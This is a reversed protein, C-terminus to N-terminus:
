TPSARPINHEQDKKFSSLLQIMEENGKHIALWLPTSGGHGTVNVDAGHDLLLQVTKFDNNCVAKHLPTEGDNNRSEINAGRDLLLQVIGIYRCGCALYLPTHNDSDRAETDAGRDLLLQVIKIYGYRSALCLPTRNDSDRAEIDAGRDLLLQAIEIHGGSSALYLPTRRDSDRAKIDAGRDLLLQVIEIHGCWSALCLPTRNDSARAEIDAGRDLLLQVIKIHRWRSALCLPTYRNSDRAEIDAGRDLLLQVIEIHGCRSALCLPTPLGIHEDAHGSDPNIGQDLLLLQVMGTCGEQTAWHLPTHGKRPKFNRKHSIDLLASEILAADGIQPLLAGAAEKHGNFIAAALPSGYREGRFSIRTDYRNMSHILSAFNSEALIYLLSASPTHRRIEFIEFTNDLNIWSKLDFTKLFADQPLKTAATNAHYLVNHTAYQLFPFKMSLLERLEKAEGCSAKPLPENFTVYESIDTKMYAYCCEKLKDHSRSQFTGELDPWLERIGGDKLLFDRVSEHIFQVTGAKSKTPKTVEALGKSSSSVFREMDDLMTNRTNWESLDQPEPDLGAVVAYYFEEPKLPSKAYLIWQICLLLENMNKNDRRLIDKFLASLEAPTEQLRKRVAFIRGRQFEENLINVVLVVWM